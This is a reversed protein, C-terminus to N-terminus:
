HMHMDPMDASAKPTQVVVKVDVKGAREFQLTMPFSEGEKLPQKLGVLMLHYGMGPKMKVSEKAALAIGAVQRMRMVGQADVSMTHMEVSAAVPTSASLLKDPTTGKNELAVFYAAGTQVGALSPTAYPHDIRIEGVSAGHAGALGVALSAFAAALVRM